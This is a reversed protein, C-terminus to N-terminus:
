LQNHNDFMTNKLRGSSLIDNKDKQQTGIIVIIIRIRMTM